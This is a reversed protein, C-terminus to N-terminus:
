ALHDSPFYIAPGPKMNFVQGDGTFWPSAQTKIEKKPKVTIGRETRYYVTKVRRGDSLVREFEGLLRWEDSLPLPGVFASTERKVVVRYVAGSGDCFGCCVFSGAFKEHRGYGQCNSCVEQERELLAEFRDTYRRHLHVAPALACFIAGSIFVFLQFTTIFM